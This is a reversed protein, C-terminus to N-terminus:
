VGALRQPWRIGVPRDPRLGAVPAIAEQPYTTIETATFGIVQNTSNLVPLLQVARVDLTGLSARFLRSSLGRRLAAAANWLMQGTRLRSRCTLIVQPCDQHSMVVVGGGLPEEEQAAYVALLWSFRNRWSGTIRFAPSLGDSGQPAPIRVFATNTGLQALASEVVTDTVPACTCVLVGTSPLTTATV